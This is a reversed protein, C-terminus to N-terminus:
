SFSGYMSLKPFCFLDQSITWKFLWKVITFNQSLYWYKRVMEKGQLWVDEIPNQEPANPALRICRLLWEEETKRSNIKELYDRFERSHHYKAGDWIIVIQAKRNEFLLKKVFNITNETNGQPYEKVIM